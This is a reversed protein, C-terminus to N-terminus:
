RITVSQIVSQIDSKDNTKDSPKFCSWFRLSEDSAATVVTTSDTPSKLHTMHLIRGSHCEFETKIGLTTLNWLKLRCDVGGHSSVIEQDEEPGWAIGSIQSKTPIADVLTGSGRFNWIRINRDESGSGTALASRKYPCWALAKVAAQHPLTFLPRPATLSHRMDWVRVNKDVGCGGSALKTSGPAWSLGCVQHDHSWWKGVARNPTRVDYLAIKKDKGGVALLSETWSLATVRFPHKELLSVMACREIDFVASDGAITGFSVSASRPACCVSTIASSMM